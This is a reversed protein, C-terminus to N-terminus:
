IGKSDFEIGVCKSEFIKKKIQKKLISSYYTISILGMQHLATGM